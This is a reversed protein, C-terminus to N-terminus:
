ACDSLLSKLLSSFVSVISTVLDMTDDTLDNKVNIRFSDNMNGSILPAPYVGNALSASIPMSNTAAAILIIVEVYSRKFGDPAIVANKLDLTVPRQITVAESVHLLTSVLATALAFRSLSPGITM